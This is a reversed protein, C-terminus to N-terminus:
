LTSITDRGPNIELHCIDEFSPCIDGAHAMQEGKRQRSQLVIDRIQTMDPKTTHEDREMLHDFQEEAEALFEAKLDERNTKM